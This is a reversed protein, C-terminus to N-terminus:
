FFLIMIYSIKYNFISNRAFIDSPMLFCFYLFRLDKRENFNFDALVLRDTESVVKRSENHVLEGSEGKTEDAILTGERIL